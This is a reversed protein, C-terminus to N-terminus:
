REIFDNLDKSSIEFFGGVPANYLGASIREIIYTVTAPRFYRVKFVELGIQVKKGSLKSKQLEKRNLRKIRETFM